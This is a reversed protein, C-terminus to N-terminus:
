GPCQWCLLITHKYRSRSPSRRLPEAMAKGARLLSTISRLPLYQSPEAMAKGAHFSTYASSSLDDLPSLQDEPWEQQEASARVVYTLPRITGDSSTHEPELVAAPPTGVKMVSIAVASGIMQHDLEAKFSSPPGPKRPYKWFFNAVFIESSPPLAGHNNQRCCEPIRNLATDQSYSGERLSSWPRTLVPLFTLFITAFVRGFGQWCPFM